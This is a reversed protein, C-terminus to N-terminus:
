RSTATNQTALTRRLADSVCRAAFDMSHTEVRERAARRMVHLSDPDTLAQELIGAFRHEGAAGTPFVWGTRGEQVLDPACGVRDSVIVPRGCAMAENIALGWTENCLSPLAVIDAMRYVAPMAQQNQFGLFHFRSDGRASEELPRRLAGDGIFVFRLRESRVLRGIRLLCAPDKKSELKGCFAVVLQDDSIGLQRRLSLAETDVDRGPQHFRDNDVAHPVYHLRAPSLGHALYYDRNHSGVHLAMDVHSYVWRLFIRRAAKRIGPREDLLTSDGRFLVPVKGSFHRMVHLHSQYPWSYVLIADPRWAALIGTIGPNVIGMFRGAGPRGATNPVFTHPYGDLLPIDWRVDRGFAADYQIGSETQSWTYFVKPEIGDLGNLRAFLPANYQIPHTTVIALRPM